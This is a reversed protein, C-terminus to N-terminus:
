RISMELLFLDNTVKSGKSEGGKDDVARDPNAHLTQGKM